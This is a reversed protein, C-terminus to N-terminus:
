DAAKDAERTHICHNVDFVACNTATSLGPQSSRAEFAEERFSAELDLDVREITVTTSSRGNARAM